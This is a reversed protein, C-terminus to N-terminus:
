SRNFNANITGVPNLKTFSDLDLTKQLNMDHDRLESGEITIVENIKLDNKKWLIEYHKIKREM